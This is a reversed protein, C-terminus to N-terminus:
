PPSLCSDFFSGSDEVIGSFDGSFDSFLFRGYGGFVAPVYVRRETESIRLAGNEIEGVERTKTKNNYM